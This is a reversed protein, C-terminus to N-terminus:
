VKNDTLDNIAYFQDVNDLTVLPAPMVNDYPVPLGILHNALRGYPTTKHLSYHRRVAKAGGERELLGADDVCQSQLTIQHGTSVGAVDTFLLHYVVM